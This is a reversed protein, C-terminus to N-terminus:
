IALEQILDVILQRRIILHQNKIILGMSLIKKKFLRFIGRQKLTKVNLVVAGNGLEEKAKLIAETETDAQFKKVIM